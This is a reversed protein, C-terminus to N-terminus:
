TFGRSAKYNQLNASDLLQVNAETGSPSVEGGGGQQQYELDNQQFQM